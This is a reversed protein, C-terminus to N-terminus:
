INEFALSDALRPDRVPVLWNGAAIYLVAAAYLCVLGITTVLYVMMAGGNLSWNELEGQPAIIYYLDFWHMVLM